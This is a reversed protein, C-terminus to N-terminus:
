PKCIKPSFDKDDFDFYKHLEALTKRKIAPTIHSSLEVLAISLMGIDDVFGVGIMIDPILDIPLIFYGLAGAILAKEPISVDPSKMTNWLLLVYYVCELGAKAAFKKLKVGLKKEDYESQYKELDSKSNNAM